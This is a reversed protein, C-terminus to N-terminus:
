WHVMLSLFYDTMKGQSVSPLLSPLSSSPFFSPLLPLHHLHPSYGLSSFSSSTLFPLSLSLFSPLPRLFTLFLLHFTHPPLFPPYFLCMLIFPPPFLPFSYFSSPLTIVIFLFHASPFFVLIFHWVLLFLYIVFVYPLLPLQHPYLSFLVFLSLPLLHHACLSPLTSSFSVWFSFFLFTFPPLFPLLHPSFPCSPKIYMYYSNIIPLALLQTHTPSSTM